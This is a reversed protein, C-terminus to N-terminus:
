TPKPRDENFDSQFHAALLFGFFLLDCLLALRKKWPYLAFLPLMLFFTLATLVTSSAMMKLGLGIPFAYIFPGYIWLAPLTLLFLIYANPKKKDMHIFLSALLAYIPIIFFAAGKLYTSVGWCIVLWIGIPIVLANAVDLKQYRHYIWFCCALSFFLFALIYLHGNYPFGQLIDMYQPYVKTLIPWAYLGTIGTLALGVVVPVFGLGIEKANLMKKQFGYFLLFAFVLVAIILMPGIWGFPYAVLKFIPINFYVYDEPDQMQSLNVESFYRLLPSLYSGQHALTNRDLRDLKDLATHYDYHDDIFAFNFGPIDGQERFVTLDTDNPLLKYISYYLSNAMPYQPQAQVFRLILNKNGSNTEMFTYSPGGSGRAEFNLVLGVEQAWPHENVFLQAGNLDVEEADSLLLIIDNKPITDTALFARVGESITAVGSGADSAGLASHLDSDYQSLLLLAKGSGSGSIRALINTVKSLNHDKGLCYGEQVSAQLGMKELQDIIYQRAKAHGPFGVGRPEQSLVAVHGLARDMSFATEALNRDGSYTPMMTRFGWYLALIILLLSIVNAYKKM